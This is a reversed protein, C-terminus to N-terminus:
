EASPHGPPASGHGSPARSAPERPSAPPAAQAGGGRPRSRAPGPEQRGTLVPQWQLTLCGDGGADRRTPPHRRRHRSSRRLRPRPRPGRPGRLRDRPPQRARVRSRRLGRDEPRRLAPQRLAVAQARLAAARAVVPAAHQQVRRARRSRRPEVAAGQRALATARHPPDQDAVAEASRERHAADADRRSRSATREAAGPRM